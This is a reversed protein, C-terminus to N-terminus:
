SPSFRWVITVNWVMIVILKKLIELFCVPTVDLPLMQLLTALLAEDGGNGKGYYGSLLVRMKGM